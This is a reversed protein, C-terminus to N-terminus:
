EHACTGNFIWHVFLLPLRELYAGNLRLYKIKNYNDALQCESLCSLNRKTGFKHVCKRKSNLRETQFGNIAETTTLM